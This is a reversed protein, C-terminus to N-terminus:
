VLAASIMKDTGKLRIVKVGQATRSFLSLSKVETILTKGQKTSIMLKKDQDQKKYPLVATISGTKIIKAAKVGGGGRHQLSFQSFKVRKGYGKEMLIIIEDLENKNVCLFDAVEDNVKLRIGRVGAAGRGMARIEDLKFKIAQGKKSVIFGIYDSQGLFVDFLEDGPKLKMAKLGGKHIKVFANAKVKKLVGKKSILALFEDKANEPVVIMKVVREDTAFFEYLGQGRATRSKEPIEYSQISFVRGGETFLLINDYTFANIIQEVSDGENLTMGSVGTGGRKQSKYTEPSLRKIYGNKTLTILTPVNEIFDKDSMTKLSRAIIQTKRPTDFKDKIEKLESKIVNLIKKEDALISELKAIIVLKEKLEDEIKKKELAALSQLRMQLIAEIQLDSFKFHTKLSLAAEEKNGSKKILEIVKDINQLAKFLGELIHAREKAKKLDFQIRRTVIKKNHELFFNLIDLLPLIRPEIGDVLAIMLFNFNKQLATHKYLNNIIKGSSVGKKLEIKISIKGERSADVIDFIGDFIGRSKTKNENKESSKEVLEAINKILDSKNVQYPIEVIEITENGSKNEQIKIKARVPIGGRGTLYAEHLAKKDYLTCGTPFDPGKIFEMIKEISIEERKTFNDIIYIIADILEGLNHPPISTAMGVAIGQSGNLLLQPIKAPLYKPELVTNDFNPAWDVTEKDIEEIMLDSLATLKVETYRMAAAPDGDISGFNGQGKVLPDRLSFDQAMRVMAGYVPLDGHPHYKGLVEGIVTASKRSKAGSRLGLRWMAYIIRRQVPKLGDRVDPLARAIIVSMAYDLYSNQLEETIETDIIKNM